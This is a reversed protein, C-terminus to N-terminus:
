RLKIFLVVLLPTIVSQLLMFRVLVQTDSWNWNKRCQDHIPFRYRNIVKVLGIQRAAEEDTAFNKPNIPNPVRSLPLRVDYGLRRLFRLLVIKVLGTGGNALLIPACVLLMFPNGSALTAVGILLGLFRSGADGMLVSSPSANYWLYGALMGCATFMMIAWRAGDQYHPLLLYEAVTYHGIIGYLFAGMFFLTLLALSGALGDVGDSCNVANISIWLMAAAIPVYVWPSVIFSGGYETGKFFPMWITTDEFGCICCAAAISVAFDLLGKKLQGWPKASIDDGFGTLMTIFLVGIMGGVRWNLPMVLLLTVTFVSVMIIGAATPKGKAKESDKVFAKGQDHPLYKWLCPLLLWTFLGAIFAGLFILVVHSSLLRFPGWVKLLIESLYPLM